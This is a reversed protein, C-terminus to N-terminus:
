IEQQKCAAIVAAFVPALVMGWFGWLTFGTYVAALTVLPDLGIHKGVLRPELATRVTLAALYTLVLGLARTLNGQLLCFIAWPILVTGTGLVPVADVLAILGGWLFGLELGILTLGLGVIGWTLAMLKLQARLWGGLGTRIKGLLPLYRSRWHDPIRSAVATKLKPLRASIMFASLVGTFIGVAGKPLWTLLEGMAKPIRATVKTLLDKNKPFSNEVTQTLLNQVGAPAKQASELLMHRLNEMADSATNEVDPLKRAIWAVERMLLAGLFAVLTVVLLLTVGVGLASAAGRRWHLRRSTLSVMPEAALALLAGLGFPLIVPLFYRLGLWLGVLIGVPVLWKKFTGKEM